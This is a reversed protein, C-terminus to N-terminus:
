MFNVELSVTLNVSLQIQIHKCSLRFSEFNHLENRNVFLRYLWILMSENGNSFSFVVVVCTTIM